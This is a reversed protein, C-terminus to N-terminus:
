WRSAARATRAERLGGAPRNTLPPEIALRVASATARCTRSPSRDSPHADDVERVLGMGRDLARQADEAKRESCSRLMGQSPIEAQATSRELAFDGRDRRRGCGTRRRRWHRCWWCRRRRDAARARPSRGRVLVEPQVGVAGVAGGGHQAVRPRAASAPMSRLRNARVRDACTARGARRSRSRARARHRAHQSSMKRMM